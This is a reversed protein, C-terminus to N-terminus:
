RSIVLHATAMRAPLDAFFPGTEAEVGLARYIGRVADVGLIVLARDITTISRSQGYYPSNAVRLVRAYLAPEKGVLAAVQRPSVEPNCLAAMIRPASNAGTGLVGLSAAARLIQTRDFSPKTHFNSEM